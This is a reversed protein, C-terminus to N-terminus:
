RATIRLTFRNDEFEPHLFLVDGLNPLNPPLFSGSRSAFTLVPYLDGVRATFGNLLAVTLTGDLTARGTIQFQDHQRDGLEVHLSGAAKQTYNGRVTLVGAAGVGGVEVRGANQLTGDITGAGALVGGQIDVLSGVALTGGNLTTSGASQTYALTVTLTRGAALTVFGANTFTRSTANDGFRLSGGTVNTDGLVNYGGGVEVSGASVRVTGAGSVVSTTGLTHSGGGFELVAGAATTFTGGSSGGGALNLTGAQVHVVAQNDVPVDITLGFGASKRLTGGTLSVRGTVTLVGGQLDTLGAFQNYIGMVRLLSGPGIALTGTNVLSGTTLTHGNQLTLSGAANNGTLGALANDGALDLVEAGSGSLVLNAENFRINAGRFQLTGRVADGELRYTGRSLTGNVFNRFSGEVRVRGRQVILTAAATQEYSGAALFVGGAAVTLTGQNLFLPVGAGTVFDRGNRITLSGNPGNTALHALRNNGLPDVVQAGAGSLVLNAANTTLNPGGFQLTGPAQQSGELRYTGGTLTGGAFNTFTGDVRLTGHLIHVTATAAQTYNGRVHFRNGVGITLTGDNRFLAVSPGTTFHFGQQITFTGAASNTAFTLLADTGNQNVIEAAGSLVLNAANTTVHADRFQLTGPVLTTGELRYTGGTLTGNSFNTFAGEVRLRGRDVNLTAPGEQTYDRTVTFLSGVGVTLTGANRFNPVAASTTFNRGNQLTLSGNQEITALNTLANSGSESLIHSGQNLTAPGTLVITAAVTEINAGDLYLTGTLDYTGGTLTRTTRNFNLFPGNIWLWGPSPVRVTGLNTIPAGGAVVVNLTGNGEIVGQVRNELSNGRVTLTANNLQIRGTNVHNAGPRGLSLETNDIIFTGANALEGTIFFSGNASGRIAQILGSPANTFAGAGSVVLTASTIGFGSGTDLRITGANSAGAAVTLTSAGNGASIVLTTRTLNNGLLTCTGLLTISTEGTTPSAIVDVSSNLVAASGNLSGGAATYVGAGLRLEAGPGSDITGRNLFSGLLWFSGNASGRNAVIVGTPANTFAGAGSVELTASTIVFGSGTDLRITGANTADGSVNLKAAGSGASVVLITGARNDGLLTCNGILWVSADGTTPSATVRVSSNLVGVSGNLSGGAVEYVGGTVRLDAGPGSSIQGQNRLNGGLTFSGNASGRTAHIVGTPANTFTGPGNVTLNATTIIFGSGTELRISGANSAGGAVTLNAPGNGGQVVVTQGAAINGNLTSNGQCLFTAAGTASPGLNLTSNILTTAYTITGNNLNFTSGNQVTLGNPTSLTGNGVTLRALSVTFSTQGILTGGDVITTFLRNSDQGTAQLTGTVQLTGGSVRLSSNAGSLTLHGVQTTGSSYTVNIGAIAIVATDALTPVRGGEWNAATEWAGGQPNAFPIVAPVERTELAELWPRFRARRPCPLCSRRRSAPGSLQRLLRRILRIVM